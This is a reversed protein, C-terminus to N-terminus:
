VVSSSGRELPSSRAWSRAGDGGGLEVRVGVVVISGQLTCWRLWRARGESWRRRDLGPAHVMEVVSTSELELSSSRAGSRAGDGGGLEVRAGVAVISGRFTCWRWWQARGESWRRPDLLPAHVMEVLSAVLISGQLTCWRWWRARGESWRRRDIRPAHMM